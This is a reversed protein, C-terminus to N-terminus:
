KKNKYIEYGLILVARTLEGPDVNLRLAEKDIMDVIDASMGISYLMEGSENKVNEFRTTDGYALWEFPVYMANALRGIVQTSPKSKGSEYRSIQAPAVESQKALENQSWGLMVRREILRSAISNDNTM